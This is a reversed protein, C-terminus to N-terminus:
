QTVEFRVPIKVFKATPHTTELEVIGKFMGGPSGAPVEAKLQWRNKATKGATATLDVNLFPNEVAVAQGQGSPDRDVLQQLQVSSIKVEVPSEGLIKVFSRMTKGESVRVFGYDLREPTLLVDGLVRGVADIRVEPRKEKNTKCTLSAAFPGIPLGPMVKITLKVGSTAQLSQLTSEDAPEFEATVLPNTSEIETLQLDDFKRSFIYTSSTTVDGNRAEDMKVQSQTVEVFPVIEGDVSFTAVPQKPDNTDLNATTRFDGSKEETNWDMEFGIAGGPVVTVVTKPAPQSPDWVVDGLKVSTCGCSTHQIRLLLDGVGENRIEFVHRGVTNQDMKGFSYSNKDTVYRPLKKDKVKLPKIEELPLGTGIELPVSATEGQAQEKNYCGCALVAALAIAIPGSRLFM